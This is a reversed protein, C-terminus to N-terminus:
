TRTSDKLTHNHTDPYVSAELQAEMALFELLVHKASKGLAQRQEGVQGAELDALSAWTREMYGSSYTRSELSTVQRGRHLRRWM